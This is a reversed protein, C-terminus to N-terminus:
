LFKRDFKNTQEYGLTNHLYSYLDEVRKELNIKEDWDNKLQQRLKLIEETLEDIKENGEEIDKYAIKVTETLLELNLREIEKPLIEIQFLFEDIKDNVELLKEKTEELKNLAEKKQNNNVEDSLYLIKEMLNKKLKKYVKMQRMAEKEEALKLELDKVIKKMARTLHEEFLAKWNKDKILIPIKNKKIIYEDLVIDKAM